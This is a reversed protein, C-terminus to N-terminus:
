KPHVVIVVVVVLFNTIVRTEVLTLEGQSSERCCYSRSLCDSVRVDAFLGMGGQGYVVVCAVWM